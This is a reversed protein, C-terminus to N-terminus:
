SKPQKTRIECEHPAAKVTLSFDLFICLSNIFWVFVFITYVIFKHVLCKRCGLVTSYVRAVLAKSSSPNSNM